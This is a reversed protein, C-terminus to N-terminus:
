QIGGTAELAAVCAPDALSLDAHAQLLRNSGFQVVCSNSM